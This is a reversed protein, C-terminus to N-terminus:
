NIQMDLWLDSAVLHPMAEDSAFFRWSEEGDEFTAFVMWCEGFDLWLDNKDSLAVRRVKLSFLRQISARFVESLTDEYFREVCKTIGNPRHIIKFRCTAHLVFSCVQRKEGRWNLREITSGFGFDYLDLDSAKYAYTIPQGVLMQLYELACSNSNSNM